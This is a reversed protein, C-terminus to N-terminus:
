YQPDSCTATAALQEVKTLAAYYSKVEHEDRQRGPFHGEHKLVAEIQDPALRNGEIM